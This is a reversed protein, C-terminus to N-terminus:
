PISERLDMASLWDHVAALDPFIRRVRERTAEDPAVLDPVMVPMAGAAHAAAIGPLSDELVLCHEPAVGLSAAAALYIEPDPKCRAVEDGCIVADFYEALGSAELLPDVRVRNTSTAMARPIGSTRLFGLLDVLGKKVPVGNKAIAAAALELRRQRIADHPFEPGHIKMLLERTGKAALGVSSLFFSRDIEHGHDRAAAVWAEVALRETDFMLGDMDFVVAKLIMGTAPDLLRRNM